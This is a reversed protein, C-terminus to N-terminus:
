HKMASREGGKHEEHNVLAIKIVFLAFFVFFPLPASSEAQWSKLQRSHSQAPIVPKEKYIGM